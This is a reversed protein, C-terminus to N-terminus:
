RAPRCQHWRRGSETEALQWIRIGARMVLQVDTLSAGELERGRSRLRAFKPHHHCLREVAECDRRRVAKRLEKAQIKLQRLSPKEPLTYRTM